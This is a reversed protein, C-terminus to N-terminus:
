GPPAAALLFLFFMGRGCANNVAAVRIQYQKALDLESLTCSNKAGQYVVTWDEFAQPPSLAMQPSPAPSPAPLPRSEPFAIQVAEVNSCIFDQM